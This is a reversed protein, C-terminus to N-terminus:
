PSEDREEALARVASAGRKLRPWRANLWDTSPQKGPLVLLGRQALDVAQPSVGRTPPPPVLRAVVVGRDTISITHGERVARLLASLKNKADSVSISRM